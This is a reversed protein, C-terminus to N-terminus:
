CRFQVPLRLEECYLLRLRNRGQGFGDQGARNRGTGFVQLHITEYIHHDLVDEGFFVLLSKYFAYLFKFYVAPLCGTTGKSIQRDFLLFGIQQLLFFYGAFDVM